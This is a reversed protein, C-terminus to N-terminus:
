GLGLEVCRGRNRGGGPSADIYTGDPLKRAKAGTYQPTVMRCDIGLLRLVEEDRSSAEDLTDDVGLALRLKEWVEPVAWFDFPVRDPQRHALAM